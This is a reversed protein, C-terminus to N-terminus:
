LLRKSEILRPHFRHHTNLYKNEDSFDKYHSTKFYLREFIQEFTTYLLPHFVSPYKNGGDFYSSVHSLFTFSNPDERKLQLMYYNQPIVMKNKEWTCIEDRYRMGEYIRNQYVFGRHPSFVQDLNIKDGKLPSNFFNILLGSYTTTLIVSILSFPYICIRFPLLRTITSPVYPPEECLCGLLFLFSSFSRTKQQQSQYTLIILYCHVILSTILLSSLIAMWLYLSFPSAYMRFQIYPELTHCTLFEVDEAETLVIQFNEFTRRPIWDIIIFPQANEDFYIRNSKEEEAIESFNLCHMAIWTLVIHPNAYQQGKKPLFPNGLDKSKFNPRGKHFKFRRIRTADKLVTKFTSFTLLIPLKKVCYVIRHQKCKV